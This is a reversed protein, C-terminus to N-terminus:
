TKGLQARGMDRGLASRRHSAPAFSLLYRAFGVSRPGSCALRMEQCIQVLDDLICLRTHQRRARRIAMKMRSGHCWGSTLGM